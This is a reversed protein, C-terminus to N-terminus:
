SASPTCREIVAHPFLIIDGEGLFAILRLHFREVAKTIASHGHLQSELASAVMRLTYLMGNFELYEECDEMGDEAMADLLYVCARYLHVVCLQEPAPPQPLRNNASM